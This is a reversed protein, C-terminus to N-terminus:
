FFRLITLLHESSKVNNQFTLSFTAVAIVKGSFVWTCYDTDMFTNEVISPLDM